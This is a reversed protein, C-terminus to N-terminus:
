RSQRYNGAGKEEEKKLEAYKDYFADGANGLFGLAGKGLKKLGYVYKNAEKHQKPLKKESASRMKKFGWRCVDDIGDQLCALSHGLSEAWFNGSRKAM